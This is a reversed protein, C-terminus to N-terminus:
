QVQRKGLANGQASRNGGKLRRAAQFASIISGLADGQSDTVCLLADGQLPSISTPRM